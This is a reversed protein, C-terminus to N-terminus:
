APEDDEKGVEVTVVDIGTDILARVDLDDRPADTIVTDVQSLPGAPAFSARGIKSSDALVIVRDASAVIQSNVRADDRDFDTLGDAVSVGAVSTIAFDWHYQAFYQETEAGVVHPERARVGGGPLMVDISPNSAIEMAASLSMTAVTLQLHSRVLLRSLERITTGYGLAVTAQGHLLGLASRAIARKAPLSTIERVEVAPEVSRGVRLVAGGAIRDVRGTAELREVDRRVTMESVGLHVSAEAFSVKGRKGLLELIQDRRQGPPTRTSMTTM